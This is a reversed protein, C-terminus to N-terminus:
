DHVVTRDDDAENILRNVEIVIAAARDRPLWFTKRVLGSKEKRERERAKARRLQDARRDSTM